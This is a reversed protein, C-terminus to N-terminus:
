EAFGIRGIGPLKLAPHIVDLGLVLGLLNIEVGERMGLSLGLLGVVSLQVGSGGPTLAAFEGPPLYDKGIATPPLAVHLEPVARALYATFTNSNPGPWLTYANAFPYDRVAEQLRVILADVGDGRKDAILEPRNGAWYGDPARQSQRLAPVGPGVGWGVVDYRTYAAAGRPKFAVWTHVGLTGRWGWTRAAYFQIIPEEHRAPDPALGASDWRATRWNSQEGAWAAAVRWTMPLLVFGVVCLATWGSWGMGHRILPVVREFFMAPSYDPAFDGPSRFDM